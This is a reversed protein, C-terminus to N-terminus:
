VSGHQPEFIVEVMHLDEREDKTRPLEIHTVAHLRVKMSGARRQFAESLADLDANSLPDRVVVVVHQTQDVPPRHYTGRLRGRLGSSKATTWALGTVETNETIATVHSRAFLKEFNRHDRMPETTVAALSDQRLRQPDDETDATEAPYYSDFSPLQLKQRLRERVKGSLLFRTFDAAELLMVEQEEAEVRAEPTFGYVSVFCFRAEGVNALDKEITSWDVKQDQYRKVQIRWVDEGLEGHDFRAEADIISHSGGVVREDIHAGQAKFYDVVLWEWDTADLAEARRVVLQKLKRYASEIEPDAAAILHPSSGRALQEVADFPRLAWFSGRPGLVRGKLTGYFDVIPIPPVPYDVRRYYWIDIDDQLDFDRKLVDSIVRCITVAKQSPDYYVVYDGLSCERAFRWLQGVASGRERNTEYGPCVSRLHELLSGKSATRLIGEDISRWGIGVIENDECFPVCRGASGLKIVWARGSM